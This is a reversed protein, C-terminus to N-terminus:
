RIVEGEICLRGGNSSVGDMVLFLLSYSVTCQEVDGLRVLAKKPNLKEVVGYLDYGLKSHWGVRDGVKLSNRDLGGSSKRPNINVDIGELNILYFKINSKKGDCADIVSAWTKRIEECHSLPGGTSTLYYAMMLIQQYQQPFCSKLLKRLGLQDTIADLIILPGVVEASATVVPDRVAAQEPNLRGSPIFLGNSDLKGVCIKKNRAQKKEKDWYSM